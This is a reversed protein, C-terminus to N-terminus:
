GAAASTHQFTWFRHRFLSPIVSKLVALDYVSLRCLMCRSWPQRGRANYQHETVACFPRNLCWVKMNLRSLGANVNPARLWKLLVDTGLSMWRKGCPQELIHVGEEQYCCSILLRQDWFNQSSFPHRNALNSKLTYEYNPKWVCQCNDWWLNPYVTKLISKMM